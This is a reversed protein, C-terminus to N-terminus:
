QFSISGADFHRQLDIVKRVLNNQKETEETNHPISQGKASFGRAIEGRRAPPIRNIVSNKEQLKLINTGPYRSISRSIKNQLSSLLQCDKEKEVARCSKVSLLFREFEFTLGLGLPSTCLDRSSNISGELFMTATTSTEM